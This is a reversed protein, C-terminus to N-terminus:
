GDFVYQGKVYHHEVGVHFDATKLEACDVSAATLDRRLAATRSNLSDVCEAYDRARSAVDFSLTVVDPQASVYGRGKVTICDM